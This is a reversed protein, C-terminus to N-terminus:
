QVGLVQLVSVRPSPEKFEWNGYSISELTLLSIEVYMDLLNQPFSSVSSCSIQFVSIWCWFIDWAKM